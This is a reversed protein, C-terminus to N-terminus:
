LLDNVWTVVQAFAHWLTWSLVGIWAVTITLCVVIIAYYVNNLFM